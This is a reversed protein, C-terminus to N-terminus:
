ENLSIINTGAALALGNQVMKKIANPASDNLLINGHYVNEPLQAREFGLVELSISRLVFRVDSMKLLAMGGKFQLDGNDKKQHLAIQIAEEQDVWNISAEKMSDEREPNADFQFAQYTVIGNEIFQKNSIGRAFEDPFDTQEM